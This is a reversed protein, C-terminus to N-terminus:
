ARSTHFYRDRLCGIEAGHHVDHHIMTWFIQWTPWLEGWYTKVPFELDEDGSLGELDKVLLDHGEELRDRLPRYADEMEKSLLDIQSRPM